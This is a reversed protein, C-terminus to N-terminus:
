QCSQMSKSYEFNEINRLGLFSVVTPWNNVVRNHINCRNQTNKFKLCKRSRPIMPFGFAVDSALKGLSMSVNSIHKLYLFKLRHRFKKCNLLM